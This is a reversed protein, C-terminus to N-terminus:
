PPDVQDLAGSVELFGHPHPQHRTSQHAYSRNRQGGGGPSEVISPSPLTFLGQRLHSGGAFPSPSDGPTPDPSVNSVDIPTPVMELKIGPSFGGMQRLMGPSFGQFSSLSQFGRWNAEEKEHLVAAAAPAEMITALASEDPLLKKAWDTLASKFIGAEEQNKAPAKKGVYKNQQAPTKKLISPQIKQSELHHKIDQKVMKKQPLLEYLEVNERGTEEVTAPLPITALPPGMLLEKAHPSKCIKHWRNKVCNDTRGPTM